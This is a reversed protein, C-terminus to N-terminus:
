MCHFLTRRILSEEARPPLSSSGLNLFLALISVDPIVGPLLAPDVRHPGFGFSWLILMAYRSQTERATAPLGPIPRLAYRQTPKDSRRAFRWRVRTEVIPGM